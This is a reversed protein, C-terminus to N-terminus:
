GNYVDENVLPNGWLNIVSKRTILWTAGPQAQRAALQEKWIAVMVATKDKGWYFSVERVTLVSGLLIEHAEKDTM